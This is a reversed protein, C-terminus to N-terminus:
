KRSELLHEWAGELDLSRAMRQLRRALEPPLPIGDARRMKEIELEPEGPYYVRQEPVHASSTLKSLMEAIRNRFAIWPGFSRIRIALFFHGLHAVGPKREEADRLELGFAGGSLVGCLVDIAVGLGFGTMAGSEPRSGLPLFRLAALAKEPDTTPEGSADLALGEPISERAALARELDGRSVASTSADLVFPGTGEVTPIAIALPNMGYMARTGFPPVVAPADNSMAIGIMNQSLARRAYFGADGFDNSRRVAVAAVGTKDAKEIALDMATTAVIHGMGNDGDLTAAGPSQHVTRIQPRPNILNSSLRDAFFPLRSTGESSHGTLDAAVMADAVKSADPGPVRFRKVIERIFYHLRGHRVYVTEQM